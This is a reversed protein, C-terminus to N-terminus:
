RTPTPWASSGSPASPWARHWGHAISPSPSWTRWQGCSHPRTRMAPITAPWGFAIAGVGQEIGGRAVILPFALTDASAADAGDRGAVALPHDEGAVAEGLAAQGAEDLGVTFTLEPAPRDPDQLSIAASAAGVAAVAAGVLSGLTQDLDAGRALAASGAILATLPGPRQSDADPVIPDGPQAISLPDHRDSDVGSADYM